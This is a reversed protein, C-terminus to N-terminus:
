PQQPMGHSKFESFVGHSMQVKNNKLDIFSQHSEVSFDPHSITISKDTALTQQSFNYNIDTGYLELDKMVGLVDGFLFITKQARNVFAKGTRLSASIKEHDILTCIVNSCEITDATHMLNCEKAKIVVELEKSKELEKLTFDKITIRAVPEQQRASHSQEAVRKLPIPSKTGVVALIIIIIGLVSAGGLIAFTIRKM